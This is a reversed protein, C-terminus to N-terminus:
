TMMRALEADPHSVPALILSLWTEIFHARVNALRAKQLM